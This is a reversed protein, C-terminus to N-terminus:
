FPLGQKYAIRRITEKASEFDALNVVTSFERLIEIFTTVDDGEQEEESADILVACRDKAILKAEHAWQYMFAANHVSQPQNHRVRQYLSDPRGNGIAYSFKFPTEVHGVRCKVSYEAKFDTRGSLGTSEFLRDSAAKLNEQPQKPSDGHDARAVLEDFLCQAAGEVDRQRLRDTVFGGEFLLYNGKQTNLIADLFEPSSKSISRGGRPTISAENALRKWFQVWRLYTKKESVFSADEEQLFRLVVTGHAWLIIGINQPEMRREDPVYKAVLYKQMNKM